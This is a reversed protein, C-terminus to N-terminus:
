KIFRIQLNLNLYMEGEKQYIKGYDHRMSSASEFKTNEYLYTLFEDRNYLHYCVVEGNNKVVIYGGYAKTFGDWVKSPVMGLTATELFSKIKYEYDSKSLNFSKRLIKNNDLMGVLDSIKNAKGLFFDQLMQALFIPLATDIKRLNMLFTDKLIQDFSLIGGGDLISKMRDQIKTRGEISNIIEIKCVDLNTIKFIFNTTKGANLLTSAGGVMSKVSFGLREEKNSVKAYSM